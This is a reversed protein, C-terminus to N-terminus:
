GAEQSTASTAAAASEIFQRAEELDLVIFEVESGTQCRFRLTLKQPPDKTASPFFAASAIGLPGLVAILAQHTKLGQYTGLTSAYSREWQIGGDGLQISGSAIPIRLWTSWFVLKNNSLELKIGRSGPILSFFTFAAPLLWTFFAFLLIMTLARRTLEGGLMYVTMYGPILTIGLIAAYGIIIAKRRDESLMLSEGERKLRLKSIYKKRPIRTIKPEQSTSPQARPTETNSVRRNYNTHM